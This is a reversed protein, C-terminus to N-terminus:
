QAAKVNRARFFSAAQRTLELTFKRAREADNRLPPSGRPHAGRDRVEALDRVDRAMPALARCDRELRNGLERLKAQQDQPIDLVSRLCAEVAKAYSVIIVGFDFCRYRKVRSWSHEALALREFCDGPVDRLGSHTKALEREARDLSGEREAGSDPRVSRQFCFEPIEPLRYWEDCGFQDPAGGTFRRLHKGLLRGLPVLIDPGSLEKFARHYIRVGCSKVREWDIREQYEAESLLDYVHRFGGQVSNARSRIFDILCETLINGWLLSVTTKDATYDAFHCDYDQVLEDWLALGYLASIFIIELSDQGNEVDRWFDAPLADFFRGQYREHAKLYIPKGTDTGDFDPGDKLERNCKRQGKSGGRQEEDYLGAPDHLLQWIARRRNKLKKWTGPLLEECLLSRSRRDFTKGDRQKKHSCSLLLLTRTGRRTPQLTTAAPCPDDPRM